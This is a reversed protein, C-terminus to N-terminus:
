VTVTRLLSLFSRSIIGEAVALEAETMPRCEDPGRDAAKPRTAFTVPAGSSTGPISPPSRRDADHM